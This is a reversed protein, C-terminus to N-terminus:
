QSVVTALSRAPMAVPQGPRLLGSFTLNVGPASTTRYV